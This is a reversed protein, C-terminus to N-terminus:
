CAVEDWTRILSDLGTLYGDEHNGLEWVARHSVRQGEDLTNTKAFDIMWVGPPVAPSPVDDHVFLLSSSVVEHTFFWDTAELAARLERLKAAFAAHVGPRTGAGVHLHVHVCACLACLACM